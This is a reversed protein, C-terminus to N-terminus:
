HIIYAHKCLRNQLVAHREGEGCARLPHTHAAHNGPQDLRQFSRAFALGIARMPSAVAGTSTCSAKTRARVRAETTRSRKTSARRTTLLTIAPHCPRRLRPM